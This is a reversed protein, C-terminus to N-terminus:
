DILEPIPEVEISTMSFKQNELKDIGEKEEKMEKRKRESNMKAWAEYLRDHDIDLFPAIDRITTFTDQSILKQMKEDNLIKEIPVGEIETEKKVRKQNLEVKEEESLAKWDDNNKKTNERFIEMRRSFSRRQVEQEIRRTKYFDNAKEDEFVKNIKDDKTLYKNPPVFGFQYMGLSFTEIGESTGIRDKAWTDAEELTRFCGRVKLMIKFKEYMMNMLQIRAVKSFRKKALFDDVEQMESNETGSFPSIFSCVAFNQNPVMISPPDPLLKVVKFNKEVEKQLKNKEVESLAEM